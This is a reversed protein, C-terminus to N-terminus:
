ATGLRLIADEIREIRRWLKEVTGSEAVISRAPHAVAHRLNSLSGLSKEFGTRSYGLHSHLKRSLIVNVLDSLYLYEVLPLDTGNDKDDQYRKKIEEHKGKTTSGLTMEYLEPDQVYMSIFQGLRLELECLLNFLYVKVPRRNLNAVSILGVIGQDDNLFYFLRKEMSLRGIVDRIKTNWPILDADTVAKRSISSYDNWHDTRFYEKVASGSVIPLVDFCNTRMVESAREYTALSADIATWGARSIGAAAAHICVLNETSFRSDKLVAMSM